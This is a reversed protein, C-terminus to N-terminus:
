PFSIYPKEQWMPLNLSIPQLLKKFNTKTM